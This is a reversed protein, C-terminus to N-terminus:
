RKGAAAAHPRYAPVENSYVGRKVGWGIAAGLLRRQLYVATIMVFVAPVQSINPLAGNVFVIITYAIGHISCRNTHLERYTKVGGFIIFALIIAVVTGFTFKTFSFTGIATEIM